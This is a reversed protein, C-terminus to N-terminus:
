IETLNALLEHEYFALGLLRLSDVGSVDPMFAWWLGYDRYIPMMGLTAHQYLNRGLQITEDEIPDATYIGYQQQTQALIRWQKMKPTTGKEIIGDDAVVMFCNGAQATAAVTSAAKYYSPATDAGSGFLHAVTGATVSIDWSDSTYDTYVPNNASAATASYKVLQPFIPMVGINGPTSPFTITKVVPFNGKAVSGWKVFAPEQRAFDRALRPSIDNLTLTIQDVARHIALVEADNLPAMTVSTRPQIFVNIGQDLEDKFVDMLNKPGLLPSSM